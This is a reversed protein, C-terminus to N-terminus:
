GKEDNLCAKALEEKRNTRDMILNENKREKKREKSMENLRKDNSISKVDFIQRQQHYRNNRGDMQTREVNHIQAQLPQLFGNIIAGPNALWDHSQDIM